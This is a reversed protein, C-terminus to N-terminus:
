WSIPVPIKRKSTIYKSPMDLLKSWCEDTWKYGKPQKEQFLNFHNKSKKEDVKNREHIQLRKLTRTLSKRVKM